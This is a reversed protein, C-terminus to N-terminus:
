GDPSFVLSPIYGRHGKLTLTPKLTSMDYLVIEPVLRRWDELEPSNLEGQHAVALTRSDPSIAFGLTERGPMLSVTGRQTQTALDWLELQNAKARVILTKGDPT